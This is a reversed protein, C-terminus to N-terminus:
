GILYGRRDSATKGLMIRDSAKLYKIARAVVQKDMGEGVLMPVVVRELSRPNDRRGKLPDDANWAQGVIELIRDRAAAFETNDVTDYISAVAELVGRKWFLSIATDDGSESYNSKKRTLVREEPLSDPPKELYMRSRVANNWATSGGAGTGSALGSMSPHALQMITAGTRLGINGVISKVFYNVQARDNESGGYCDAVTDLIILRAEIQLATEIIREHLGTPAPTGGADYTVLLNNHGVRPWVHFNKLPSDLVMDLGMHKAINHHRRWLEDRDDECFVALVPMQKTPMGLWDAGAAISVGLQQAVLSKGVGGDGYMATVTKAPIWEDVLWEREPPDGIFETVPFAGPDEPEEPGARHHPEPVDWKTRASDLAQKMERHTQDTSYGPLTLRDAWVLIENNTLGRSVWHGVLRVMSVHWHDGALCKGVLDDTDVGATLNLASPHPQEPAPPTADPFAKRSEDPLFTQRRNPYTKLETKENTRGAKVAWAISGGLRMVRSPNSVTTDGHLHNAINTLLKSYEQADTVPEELPFWPQARVHPHMGTVVVFPPEVGRGCYIEKARAPAGEDDWDAHLAWAELFDEDKCRGFPAVGDKRLAAGVYVNQGEVSNVEVAKATATELDGVDFTEAHQLKKTKADTWAIEVRGHPARGFLLDLHRAIANQDPTMIVDTVEM